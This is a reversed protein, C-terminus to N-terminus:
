RSSRCRRRAAGDPGRRDQVGQARLQPQHHGRSVRRRDGRGTTAGGRGRLRRGRGPPGGSNDRLAQDPLQRDERGANRDQDHVADPPAASVGGAGRSVLRCLEHPQDRDRRRRTRPHEGSGPYTIRTGIARTALSVAIELTRFVPEMRAVGAGRRTRGRKARPRRERKRPPRRPTWGTRRPWRQREGASGTRCGSSAPRTRATPTRCRSWCTSCGRICCRPSSPRRCRRCSRSASRWRSRCRPGGCRRRSAGQDLHAARGLRHAARDARRRRDGHPGRGSKFEKIEFSRSITAEPYVGVLEGEKLQGVPRSSRRRAATATWRSTGCAACSRGPSRTTSSRRRRWSGSRAAAAAAQIRAPRRLHLRLLQHPQDRRRCRRHPAPEGRRYRHVEAGAGGCWAPSSSSQGTYRNWMRCGLRTVTGLSGTGTGLYPTSGSVVRM